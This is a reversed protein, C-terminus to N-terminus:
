FIFKVGFQIERPPRAQLIQGFFPDAFALPFGPPNGPINPAFDSDFFQGARSYPLRYNSTNFLNFIEMRLQVNYREGEGLYTNKLISFDFNVLRDGTFTNRGLSGPGFFANSTPDFASVATTNACPFYVNCGVPLGSNIAGNPNGNDTGPNGILDPRLPLGFFDTFVTYPQGSQLTTIGALQWGSGALAGVAEWKPVDYIYRLIFRHRIDFDSLGREGRL